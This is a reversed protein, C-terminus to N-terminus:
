ALGLQKKAERRLYRRVWMVGADNKYLNEQTKWPPMTELPVRDQEVVEWTFEEYIMPYMFRYMSAQWGSLERLRWFNMQCANEDIPVVTAIIRLPGGPGLMPPLNVSVRSYLTGSDVFHMREVNTPDNKRTVFAGDEVPTVVVDDADEDIGMSYTHEHLYRTHMIDVLNDLAYQYNAHWTSSVIYGTWENSTHEFPLVLPCPESDPEVGFYVWVGQFHEEVPYSRVLKKGVLQSDPQGPVATVAGLCDIRVGHYACTINDDIVHGLSLKVGRHPCKDEAIHLKGTSDRWGVLQEGMRTLSVPKDQFMGSPGICWWRNRLGAVVAAEARADASLQENM